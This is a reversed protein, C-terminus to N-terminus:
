TSNPKLLKAQLMCEYPTAYNLSKRPKHNLINMVQQIYEDSYQAIDSKKLIFRRILRNINEVGPKQWSSYPDCFYTPMGLQYHNKNEIGNDLTLSKIILNNKMKEIASNFSKPKLNNIKQLHCYKYKREYVVALSKKSQYKKASVITDGEYHGSELKLDVKLPRHEIGVRYPIMQRKTKNKRRRKVRKRQMFLYQCYQQGYISYLWEYITNKNVYFDLKDKKMRGSIDDPSWHKKLKKIIYKKLDDDQEIKKGQYKAYKRKVYAKHQALEADYKGHKKNVLDKGRFGQRQRRHRNIERSITSKDRKLIKAIEKQKIGTNLLSEIRDRDFQTLHSYKAQKPRIKVTQYNDVICAKVFNQNHAIISAYNLLHKSHM